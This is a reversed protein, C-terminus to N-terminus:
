LDDEVPRQLLPKERQSLDRASKSTAFRKTTPPRVSAIFNATAPTIRAM